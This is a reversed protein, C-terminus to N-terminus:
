GPGAGHPRVLEGSGGPVIGPIRGAREDPVFSAVKALHAESILPGMETAEETPDGVVVGAM